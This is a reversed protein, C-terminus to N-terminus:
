HSLATVTQARHPRHRLSAEDRPVRRRQEIQERELRHEQIPANGELEAFAVFRRGAHM